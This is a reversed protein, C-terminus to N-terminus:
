GNRVRAESRRVQTVRVDITEDGRLMALMWRHHGNHVWLGGACAVVHPYPDPGEAPGGRHIGLLRDLNLMPQTPRLSGIPVRTV